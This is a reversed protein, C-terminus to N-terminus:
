SPTNPWYTLEGFTIGGVIGTPDIELWEQFKTVAAATKEGYIGDTVLPPDFAHAQHSTAWNNLRVQVRRVARGRDGNSLVEPDVEEPDPYLAWESDRRGNPYVVVLSGGKCPPIYDPHDYLKPWFDIHIHDWHNTTRWLITRIGLRDRNAVLWEYVADMYAMHRPNFRSRWTYPSWLDHANCEAHQSWPRDPDSGIHRCNCTGFGLELFALSLATRARRANPTM